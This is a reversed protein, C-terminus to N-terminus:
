AACGKKADVAACCDACNWRKPLGKARPQLYRGGTVPKHKLCRDCSKTVGFGTGDGTVYMRNGAHGSSPLNSGNHRLESM